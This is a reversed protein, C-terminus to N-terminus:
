GIISKEDILVKKLTDAKYETEDWESEPISDCTIGGGVYLRIKYSYVQASRLNVKMQTKGLINYMGLFGAYYERDFDEYLSIAEKALKNPFGCIAPTPHLTNVIDWFDSIDADIYIENRLHCINGALVTETKSISHNYSKLKKNIYNRVYEQEVLEKNTWKIENLTRDGVYQTGALAVTYLQNNRNSLLTEPSAGIWAIENHINVFFVFANYYQNHLNKFIDIIDKEGKGDISKTRAYVVKDLDSSKIYEVILKLTSIYEKNSIDNTICTACRKRNGLSNIFEILEKSFEKQSSRVIFSPNIFWIPNSSDRDFPHMVFGKSEKKLDKFKIKKGGNEDIILIIEDQNEERYIAFTVDAYICSHVIEFFNM